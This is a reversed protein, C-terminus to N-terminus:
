EIHFANTPQFQIWDNSVDKFEFTTVSGPHTIYLVWHLM